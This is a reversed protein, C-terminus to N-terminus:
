KITGMEQAQVGWLESGLKEYFNLDILVERYGRGGSDRGGELIHLILESHAFNPPEIERALL